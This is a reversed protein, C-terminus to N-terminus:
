FRALPGPPFIRRDVIEEVAKVFAESALLARYSPDIVPVADQLRDAEGGELPRSPSIHLDSDGDASRTPEDPHM